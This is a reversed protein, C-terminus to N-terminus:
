PRAFEAQYSSDLNQLLSIALRTRDTRRGTNLAISTARERLEMPFDDSTHSVNIGIGVIAIHPANPQARMEVLVGAVKAGSVFVDNPPKITPSLSFENEITAAVARAAWDTLRASHLIDINPRLLISFWLGKGPFSEWRNGHQGRGATQEEAFVVLGERAGDARKLIEDNTSTTTELIVIENGIVCDNLPQLVIPDVTKADSM